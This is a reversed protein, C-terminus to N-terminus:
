LRSCWCERDGVAIRIPENECFDGAKPCRAYFPCPSNGSRLVPTELMGNQVLAGILAKTYPHWPHDLVDAAPGRECMRGRCLV